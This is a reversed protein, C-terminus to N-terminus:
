IKCGVKIVVTYNCLQCFIVGLQFDAHAATFCARAIPTYEIVETQVIVSCTEPNTVSMRGAIVSLVCASSRKAMGKPHQVAEATNAHTPLGRREVTESAADVNHIAPFDDNFLDSTKCESYFIERNRKPEYGPSKEIRIKRSVVRGDKKRSTRSM